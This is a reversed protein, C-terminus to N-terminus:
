HGHPTRNLLPREYTRDAYMLKAFVAFLVVGAGWIAHYNMVRCCLTGVLVGAAFILMMSGHLNCKRGASGNGSRLFQVLYSGFQRLHNTCFTTAMGIGEAQRFTNFQMACIFNLTVQCIQDPWTAPMLGLLIVAILEIGVLITDWRLLKFKKIEKALVESIVTGGLYATFPILYYAAQRWEGNGLHMSLLVINATQANCFVGGRLSYTYAGYFGGVFILAWFVWIKECELFVPKESKTENNQEM